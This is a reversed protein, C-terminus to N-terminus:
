GRRLGALLELEHHLKSPLLLGSLCAAGTLWNRSDSVFHAPSRLFGETLLHLGRGYERGEYALRAFYRNMNSCARNEVGAVEQPTVRRLKELLRAWEEALADLRRTIQADHRRYFMLDRPIAEINNPSLRAIRLCLDLDYLRSLRHDIGGARELAARRVVINSTAGIVFDALLGRFDITGHYRNSHLGIDAGAQDIIRYWSFTLDIGTRCQFAQLHAALKDNTWLDDQDLFAVYAGRAIRLGSNLAAAAGRNEQQLVHLRGDRYCGLVAASGDTSGDDVVILEFGAYTQALVSDIAARLHKEGNHVCVLVSVEPAPGSENM